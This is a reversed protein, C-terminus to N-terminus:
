VLPTYVFTGKPVRMSVDLQVGNTYCYGAGYVRYTANRSLLQEAHAAACSMGLAAAVILMCSMQSCRMRNENKDPLDATSM